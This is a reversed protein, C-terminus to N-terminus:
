HSPKPSHRSRRRRRPSSQRSAPGAPFPRLSRLRAPPPGVVQRASPLLPVPPGPRASATGDGHCTLAPRAPTGGALGPRARPRPPEEPGGAGTSGRRCSRVAAALSRQVHGGRQARSLSRGTDTTPAQLPRPRPVSPASRGSLLRPHFPCRPDERPGGPRRVGTYLVLPVSDPTLGLPAPSVSEALVGPSQAARLAGRSGGDEALTPDAACGAGWLRHQSRSGGGEQDWSLLTVKNHPVEVSSSVRHHLHPPWSRM